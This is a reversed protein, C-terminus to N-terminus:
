CCNKEVYAENEPNFTVGSTDICTHIGENKALTFLETLFDVQLLPEGGTVTIGGHSYFARNKNYEAIIEEPTDRGDTYTTHTHLNQKFM